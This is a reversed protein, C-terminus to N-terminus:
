RLVNKENNCTKHTLWIFTLNITLNNGITILTQSINNGIFINSLVIFLLYNFLNIFVYNYINQKNLNNFVKNILYILTLLITNLCFTNFIIFDLILGTLLYNKYSKNYLYVIFFYSSYSSFNNIITDFLLYLYIM